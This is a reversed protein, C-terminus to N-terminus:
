ARNRAPPNNSHAAGGTAEARRSFRSMGLPPLHRLRQKTSAARQSSRRRSCRIPVSVIVSTASTTRSRRTWCASRFGNCAFLVEVPCAGGTPQANPPSVTQCRRGISFGRLEHSGRPKPIPAQCHGVRAHSAAVSGDACPTKVESNPIPDPPERESNGGPSGSFSKDRRKDRECIGSRNSGDDASHMM